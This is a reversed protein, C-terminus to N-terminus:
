LEQLVDLEGLFASIHWANRGGGETCLLMEHIYGRINPEM